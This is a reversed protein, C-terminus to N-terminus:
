LRKQMTNLQFFLEGFKGGLSLRVAIIMAVFSLALSFIFMEIGDYM